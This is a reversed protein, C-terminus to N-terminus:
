LRAPDVDPRSRVYRAAGLFDLKERAGLTVPQGRRLGSGEMDFMFTAFGGRRLMRAYSAMQEKYGGYGYVLLVTPWPAGAPDPGPVFWGELQNGNLSAFEVPEPRVDPAIDPASGPVAPATELSVPHLARRAAWIPFGGLAIGALGLGALSFARM